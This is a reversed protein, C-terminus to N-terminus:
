ITIRNLLPNPTIYYENISSNLVFNCGAHKPAEWFISDVCTLWWLWLWMEFEVLHVVVVISGNMRQLADTRQDLSTLWLLPSHRKTQSSKNSKINQNPRAHWEKWRESKREKREFLGDDQGPGIERASRRQLRSHAHISHTISCSYHWEKWRESKREKREFLDMMKVLGLREHAEERRDLIPM